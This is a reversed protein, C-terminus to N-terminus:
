WCCRKAACTTPGLPANIAGIGCNGFRLGGKVTFKLAEMAPQRMTRLEAVHAVASSRLPMVACPLTM